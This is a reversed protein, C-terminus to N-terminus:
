QAMLEIKKIRIDLNEIKKEVIRINMDMNNVKLMANTGDLSASELKKIHVTNQEFVSAPSVSLDAQLKSLSTRMENRLAEVENRFASQIERFREENVAKDGNVKIFHDHFRHELDVFDFSLTSVSCKLKSVEDSIATKQARLSECNSEFAKVSSDFKGNLSKLLDVDEYKDALEQILRKFLNINENISNIEIFMQQVRDQFVKFAPGFNENM